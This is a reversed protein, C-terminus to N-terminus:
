RFLLAIIEMVSVTFQGLSTIIFSPVRDEDVNLDAVGARDYIWESIPNRSATDKSLKTLIMHIALEGAIHNYSMASYDDANIDISNEIAIEACKNQIKEIALVYVRADFIEPFAEFDISCYVTTKDGKIVKVTYKSNEVIESSISEAFDEELSFVTM